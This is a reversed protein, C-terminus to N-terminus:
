LVGAKIKKRILANFTSSLGLERKFQEPNERSIKQLYNNIRNKLEIPLPRDDSSAQITDAPTGYIPFLKRVTEIAAEKRNEEMLNSKNEIEMCYIQYKSIDDSIIMMNREVDSLNWWWRFDEERVGEEIKKPYENMMSEMFGEIAPNDIDRFWSAFKRMRETPAYSFDERLDKMTKDITKMAMKKADEHSYGKAIFIESDREAWENRRNYSSLIMDGTNEPLIYTGQKKSKGIAADLLQEAQRKAEESGVGMVILMQCHKDLLAKEKENYKSFSFLGIKGKNKRLATFFYYVISIVVIIAFFVLFKSYEFVTLHFLNFVFGFARSLDGTILIGFFYKVASLGALISGDSVTAGAGAILVLLLFFVYFVVMIFGKFVRM